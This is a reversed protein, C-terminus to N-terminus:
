IRRLGRQTKSGREASCRFAVFFFEWFRSRAAKTLLPENLAVQIRREIEVADMDLTQSLLDEVILDDDISYTHQFNSVSDVRISFPIQWVAETLQEM